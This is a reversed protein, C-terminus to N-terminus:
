VLFSTFMTLFSFSSSFGILSSMEKFPFRVNIV